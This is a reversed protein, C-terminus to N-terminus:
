GTMAQNTFTLRRLECSLTIDVVASRGQCHFLARGQPLNQLLPIVAEPLDTMSQALEADQRSGQRFLVHIACDSFMGAGIKAAATGDDAQAATDSIRHVATLSVEGRQRGLKQRHQQWRQSEITSGLRWAEDSPVLTPVAAGGRNVIEAVRMGAVLALRMLEDDDGVGHLDIVLGNSADLEVNTRDGFMGGLAGSVLDLVELRIPETDALLSDATKRLEDLLEAPPERLAGYLDRLTPEKVREAIQRILLTLVTRELSTLRRNLKIALLAKVFDVRADPGGTVDPDMPNVRSRGGPHLELVPIGLAAALVRYEGKVDTVLMRRGFVGVLWWLLSKLFASKGEGPSGAIFVNGNSAMGTRVAEFPDLTFPAGDATRNKGIVPGPCNFGGGFHWPYAAALQATSAEVRGLTLAM